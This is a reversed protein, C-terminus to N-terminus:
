PRAAPPPAESDATKIATQVCQTVTGELSAALASAGIATRAADDRQAADESPWIGVIIQVGQLLRHRLRQILYRLHAPSGGIDLCSICVIAVNATDLTEIKERSVEDYTVLRCSFGHKELLQALIVSTAEDLPGRAAICLVIPSKEVWAQPLVTDARPVNRPDPEPPLDLPRDASVTESKRPSPKEDKYTDLGQVLVKITSSVRELQERDIIGRKADSAALQMAKVVIEDYYTGLSRDKLILEAHDQAEDADGALIRQYLAETLTLPPRDGLMVDLFELRKVHRGMM